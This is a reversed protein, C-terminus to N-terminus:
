ILQNHNGFYVFHLIYNEVINIKTNRDPPKVNREPSRALKCFLVVMNHIERITREFLIWFINCPKNSIYIFLWRKCEEVIIDSVNM